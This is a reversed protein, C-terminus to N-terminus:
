EKDLDNLYYEFQNIDQNKILDDLLNYDIEPHSQESQVMAYSVICDMKQQDPKNFTTKYFWDLLQKLTNKQNESLPKKQQKVIKYEYANYTQSIKIKQWQKATIQYNIDSLILEPKHHLEIYSDQWYYWYEISGLLKDLQKESFINVLHILVHPDYFRLIYYDANYSVFMANSIHKQIDKIAYPSAILAIASSKNNKLEAVVQDIYTAGKKIMCLQLCEYDPSVTDQRDRIPVVSEFEFDHNFFFDDNIKPDVLLYMKAFRQIQNIVIKNIDEDLITKIMM